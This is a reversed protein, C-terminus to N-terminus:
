ALLEGTHRNFPRGAHDLAAIHPPARTGDALYGSDLHEWRILGGPLEELEGREELRARVDAVWREHIAGLTLGDAFRKSYSVRRAYRPWDAATQKGLYKAVYAVARGPSKIKRVEVWGFGARWALRQICPREETCYCPSGSGPGTPLGRARRGRNTCKPLWDGWTIAHIHIRGRKTKELVRVYELERGQRRWLQVFRRWDESSQRVDAARDFRMDRDGAYTITVFRLMQRPRARMGHRAGADIFKAAEARKGTGCHACAWRKCPSRVVGGDLTVPYLEEYAHRRRVWQREPALQEWRLLVPTPCQTM